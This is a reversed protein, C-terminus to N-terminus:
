SYNMFEKKKAGPAMKRSFQLESTNHTADSDRMGHLSIEAHDVTEFEDEM